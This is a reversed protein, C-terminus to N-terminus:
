AATAASFDRFHVTLPGWDLRCFAIWPGLLLKGDCDVVTQPELVFTIAFAIGLTVGSSMSTM